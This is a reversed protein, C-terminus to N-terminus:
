EKIFKQNITNRESRLKLIYIGNALSSINLVVNESNQNSILVKRGNIDYIETQLILSNSKINLVEKVPNPFMIVTQPTKQPNSTGLACNVSYSATADKTWKSNAIAIAV